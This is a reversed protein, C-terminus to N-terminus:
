PGVPPPYRSPYQTRFADFAKRYGAGPKTTQGTFVANGPKGDAADTATRTYNWLLCGFFKGTDPGGICYACSEFLWTVVDWGYPNTRSKFGFDGGGIEPDDELEAPTAVNPLAGAPNLSGPQSSPPIGLPADIYTGTENVGPTEPLDDIDRDAANHGVPRDEYAEPRIPVRNAWSQVSQIIVIEDCRIRQGAAAPDFALHVANTPVPVESRNHRGRDKSEKWPATPEHPAPNIPPADLPWPGMPVAACGTVLWTAVAMGTHWRGM